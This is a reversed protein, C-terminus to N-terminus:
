SAGAKRYAPRSRSKQVIGAPTFLIVLEASDANPEAPKERYVWIEYGSDFRVANATGLAAAVEAKTTQGPVSLEIARQMTMTADRFPTIKRNAGLGGTGACAALFLCLTCALVQSCARM